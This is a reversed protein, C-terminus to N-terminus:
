AKRVYQKALSLLEPPIKNIWPAVQGPPNQAQGFPSNEVRPTLPKYFGPDVGRWGPIDQLGELPNQGPNLPLPYNVMNNDNGWPHFPANGLNDFVNPAQQQAAQNAVSAPRYVGPSVRVMEEQPAQPTPNRRERAADGGPSRGPQIDSLGPKRKTM